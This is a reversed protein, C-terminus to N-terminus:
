QVMSLLRNGARVLAAQPHRHRLSAANTKELSYNWPRVAVARDVHPILCRMSARNNGRRAINDIGTLAMAFRWICSSRSRPLFWMDLRANFDQGAAM